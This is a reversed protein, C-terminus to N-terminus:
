KSASAKSKTEAVPQLEILDQSQLNQLASVQAEDKAEFTAWDNTAELVVDTSMRCAFRPQNTTKDRGTAAPGIKVKFKM